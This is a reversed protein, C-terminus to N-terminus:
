QIRELLKVRTTTLSRAPPITQSVPMLGSWFFKIHSSGTAVTYQPRVSGCACRWVQYDCLNGWYGLADRKDKFVFLRSGRVSGEVWQNPTYVVSLAEVIHNCASVLRGDALALVVKFYNGNGSADDM